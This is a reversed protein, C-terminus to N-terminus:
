GNGVKMRVEKEGRIFKQVTNQCYIDSYSGQVMVLWDDVELHVQHVVAVCIVVFEHVCLLEIHLVISESIFSPM